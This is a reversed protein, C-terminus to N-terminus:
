FIVVLSDCDVLVKTSDVFTKVTCILTGLPILARAARDLTASQTSPFAGMPNSAMAAGTEDPYTAALTVTYIGTATRAVTPRLTPDSDPNWVEGGAVYTGGAGDIMVWCLAGAMSAGGVMGWAKNFTTYDIQREPDTFAGARKLTRGLSSRTHRLSM